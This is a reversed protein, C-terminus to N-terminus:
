PMLGASRLIPALELVTAPLVAGHPRRAALARAAGAAVDPTRRAVRAILTWARQWSEAGGDAAM